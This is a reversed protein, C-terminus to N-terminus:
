ETGSKNAIDFPLFLYTLPLLTFFFIRTDHNYFPADGLAGVLFAILSASLCCCRIRMPESPERWARHVLRSLNSLVMWMFAGLGLLGTEALLETYLNHSHPIFGIQEADAVSKKVGERLRDRGYGVGLIPNELGVALADAMFRFRGEIAIDEIPKALSLLRSRLSTVTLFGVLGLLGLALIVKRLSSELFGIAVLSVVCGLWAGRSYTLILGVFQAALSVLTLGRLWGKQSLIINVCLPISLSFLLGAPNPHALPYAFRHKVGFDIVSSFNLISPNYALGRLVLVGPMLGLLLLLIKQKDDVAFLDLVMVCHMVAFFFYRYDAAEHFDPLLSVTVVAFFTLLPLPFWGKKLGLGERGHRFWLLFKWIIWFFFTTRSISWASLGAGRLPLELRGIGLLVISFTLFFFVGKGWWDLFGTTTALEKLQESRWYSGPM